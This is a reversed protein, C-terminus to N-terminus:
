WLLHRSKTTFRVYVKIAKQMVKDAYFNLATYAATGVALAAHEKGSVLGTATRGQSENYKKTQNVYFNAGQSLASAALTYPNILTAASEM